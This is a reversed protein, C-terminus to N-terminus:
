AQVVFFKLHEASVEYAGSFLYGELAKLSTRVFTDISSVERRGFSFSNKLGLVPNGSRERLQYAVDSIRLRCLDPFEIRFPVVKHQRVFQGSRVLSLDRINQASVRRAANIDIASFVQVIEKRFMGDNLPPM